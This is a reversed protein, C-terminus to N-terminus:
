NTFSLFDIIGICGQIHFRTGADAKYEADDTFKEVEEL